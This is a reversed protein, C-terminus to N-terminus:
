EEERDVRAGRANGLDVGRGRQADVHDDRVVVADRLGRRPRRREHVRV